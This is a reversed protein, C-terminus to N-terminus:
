ENLGTGKQPDVFNIEDKSYIQYNEWLNDVLEINNLVETQREMYLAMVLANIVSLPAVLSDVVSSLDSKALLRCSAYLNMPSYLSDTITIIKANRSNAFELAKLTRISYRPFSIGIIIDKSSIRMMQEFIESNSTSQLLVTHPCVMHLYFHLMEALPACNRLGIVYVTEAELIDEVAIDLAHIDISAMTDKLKEIDSLFVAKMLDARSSKEKLVNIKQTTKIQTKLLEGLAKHLQPFGSFGLSVAFRVVTSESVNVEKAIEAATLFAAKEYKESLYSAIRKHSKSMSKFQQNILNLLNDKTNM